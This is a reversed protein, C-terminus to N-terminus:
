AKNRRIPMGAEKWAQVGGELVCVDSYGAAKLKKAAAGARVGQQCVVVIPTDKNKAISAAKAELESLDLRKASILAGHEAVTKDDRIDLLIAKKQNILRTAQAVTVRVGGGGTLTPWFLMVGSVLALAILWSNQLLFEQTM